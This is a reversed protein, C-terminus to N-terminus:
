QADSLAASSGSIVHKHDPLVNPPNTLIVDECVVYSPSSEAWMVGLKKQAACHKLRSLSYDLQKTKVAMDLLNIRKQMATKCKRVAERDLPYAITATIGFNRSLNNRPQGTRVPKTYLVKGPFLLNGEADTSDDYINENYYPQYPDKWSNVNAVFPNITLTSGACRIGDGIEQYMFSGTQVQIGQNVVSGVSSSSPSAVVTSNALIPSSFTISSLCIAIGCYIGNHYNSQNNNRKVTFTSAPKRQLQLKRGTNKTQITTQQRSHCGRKGM